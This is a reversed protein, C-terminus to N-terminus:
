LFLNEKMNSKVLSYHWLYIKGTGDYGYVFFIGSKGENIIKIIEDHMQKKDENLNRVVKIYDERLTAINSSLEERLFRNDKKKCYRIIQCLFSSIQYPYVVQM